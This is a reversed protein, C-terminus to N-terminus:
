PKKKKLEHASVLLDMIEKKPENNTSFNKGPHKELSFRFSLKLAEIKGSGARFDRM